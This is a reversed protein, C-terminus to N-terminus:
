AAKKLELSDAYRCRALSIEVDPFNEGNKNREITRPLLSDAHLRM